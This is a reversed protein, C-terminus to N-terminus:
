AWQRRRPKARRGRTEERPAAAPKHAGLRPAAFLGLVKKIAVRQAAQNKVAIFVTDDGAVTGVVEVIDEADIILATSTAQGIHTKVVILNEGALDLSVIPGAAFTEPTPAAYFGNVKVLGLKAIDRSVSSQTSPAGRRALEAALEQQTAVRAQSIVELIAEQRVRNM